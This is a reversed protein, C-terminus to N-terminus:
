KLREIVGADQILWRLRSYPPLSIMVADFSVFLISEMGLYYKAIKFACIKELM